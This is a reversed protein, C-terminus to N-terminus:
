RGHREERSPTNLRACLHDIQNDTLSTEDHFHDMRNLDERDRNYQFVRLAALVTALEQDDLAITTREAM